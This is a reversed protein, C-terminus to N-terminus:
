VHPDEKAFSVKVTGVDEIRTEIVDGPEVAVMPGLAGSLVIDGGKLPQGVSALRRALWAVAKLPHGLCAAGAGFSVAEGNRELVMGCLRLDTADFPVPRTGLVFLGSSANDAITDVISIDWGEIRSDVIEIAPLVYAISSILEAATLRDINPARSLVFAIEAEVKPQILRGPAVEDGDLLSMDAFLTGFDPQDVGLQRQVAKATLGIKAGVAVRGARQWFATNEAQIAYADVITAEPLDIRLPSIPRTQEHADRLRRAHLEIRARELGPQSLVTQSTM